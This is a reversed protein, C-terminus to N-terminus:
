QNCIISNKRPFLANLKGGVKNLKSKLFLSIQEIPIFNCSPLDVLGPSFGLSYTTKLFYTM